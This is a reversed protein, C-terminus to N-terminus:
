QSDSRRGYNRETYEGAVDSRAAQADRYRDDSRATQAERYRDDSRATQSERYRDDSRTAQADRYRDRGSGAMREDAIAAVGVEITNGPDYPLTANADRGNYRYVVDYGRIVERMSEVTRCRQAPQSSARKGIMSGAIAGGAAGVITGATQGRGRGVQHGLLGGAIGGIVPALISSDHQQASPPDCEQRPEAVREIIPTASIVQATDVFDNAAYAGNGALALALASILKRTM